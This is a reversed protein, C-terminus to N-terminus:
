YRIKRQGKCIFHTSAGVTLQEVGLLEDSALLISSVVIGTAVVGNALLDNVEDKVPDSLKSVLASTKLTKEDEVRKTTASARAKGREKHLAKRDVIALLRLKLKGDVWSGLDGSSNDLGVVGDQGGVGGQLVGVAGEHHVILGDIIDAAPVEVDLSGGVGIEVTQDTLDNGGDGSRQTEITGQIDIESLELGVQHGVWTDVERKDGVSRDDRSLLGVMLLEAHGLDGIGAKLWSVLHDLAIRTMALVHGAAHQVTSIHHWLIDVSGDGCDLGLTGDLKDVPAGGAELNADVVLWWSDHRSTVQGLHLTGHAHQGVGCGYGFGPSTEVVLEIQHIGLTGKDVPIHSFTHLFSLEGLGSLIKSGELLIVFLNANVRHLSLTLLLSLLVLSWGHGGM